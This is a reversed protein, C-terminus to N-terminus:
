HDVLKLELIALHDSSPIYTGGGAREVHSFILNRICIGFLLFSLLFSKGSVTRWKEMVEDIGALYLIM